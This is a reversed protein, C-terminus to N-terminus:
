PIITNHRSVAGGTDFKVLNEHIIKETDYEILQTVDDDFSTVEIGIEESHGSLTIDIQLGCIELSATGDTYISNSADTFQDAISQMLASHRINKAFPKPDYSLSKM